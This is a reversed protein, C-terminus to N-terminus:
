FNNREPKFYHEFADRLKTPDKKDEESISLNDYIPYAEVGLRLSPVVNSGMQASRMSDRFHSNWLETSVKSNNMCITKTQTSSQHHSFLYNVETTVQM